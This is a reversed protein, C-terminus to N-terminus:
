GVIGLLANRVAPVAALFTSLIGVLSYSLACFPLAEPEKSTLSATGLGGATGAAALGRAITDKIGVATMLNPGFNAGLLGQLLVAAATISLPADLQTAIPLALAVTVSRPILARALDSNLALLKAAFATSFFSFLASLFTAGLIEPAHRRLTERQSRAPRPPSPRPPPHAPCPACACACVCARALVVCVQQYIRFGFSVIVCGLFAMLFDGAGMLGQGKSYYMKLSTDYGVGYVMGHLAAGLNAVIATVVVPHLLGQLNKPVANGLLYGGVTAALGFPLAMQAGLSSGAGAAATAALSAVAVAGWAAFHSPLFPSAPKAKAIEKNETRVMERIFVTVQATFLLTAAMGVTLILMIKMLESGAIGKLALPLTVLSAVYFLPLWKAIWNLAPTYFSLLQSAASDGVVLLLAVVGFMGGLASPFTIHAATFAKKIAMDLAYLSALGTVLKFYEGIDSGFGGTAGAASSAAASPPPMMGVISLSSSTMPALGSRARWANIWARAEAKRRHADSPGDASLAAIPLMRSRRAPKTVQVRACPEIRAGLQM